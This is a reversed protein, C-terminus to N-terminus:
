SKLRNMVDAATCKVSNGFGAEALKGAVDSQDLGADIEALIESQEYPDDRQLVRAILEEAEDMASTRAMNRNLHMQVEQERRVARAAVAGQKLDILRRNAAEISHRLQLIRTELRRLTERRVTLENEMGAVAQAAERALDERDGDLAQRARDMLDQIRTELARVQGAESRERQILGALTFKASKLADTAERIKQDILEISYIDRVREEARASSGAVLTRLTAFM